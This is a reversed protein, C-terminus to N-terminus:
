DQKCVHFSVEVGTSSYVIKEIKQNLQIRRSGIQTIFDEFLCMVGRQDSIFFESEPVFFDNCQFKEPDRAYEYNTFLYDLAKQASTQPDWGLLKLGDRASLNEPYIDLM